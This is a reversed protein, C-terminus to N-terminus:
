GGQRYNGRQLLDFGRETLEITQPDPTVVYELEALESIAATVAPGMGHDAELTGVMMRAGPKRHAERFVDLIKCARESLQM